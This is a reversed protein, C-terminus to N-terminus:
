LAWIGWLNWMARLSSRHAPSAPLHDSIFRRCPSRYSREAEECSPCMMGALAQHLANCRRRLESQPTNAM